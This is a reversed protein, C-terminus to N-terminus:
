TFVGSCVSFFVWPGVSPLEKEREREASFLALSDFLWGVDHRQTRLMNEVKEKNM